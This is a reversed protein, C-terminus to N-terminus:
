KDLRRLQALRKETADLACGAAALPGATGGAGEQADPDCAKNLHKLWARQEDRLKLRAPEGLRSMVRKYVINLERDQRKFEVDTCDTMAPDNGDAQKICQDYAPSGAGAPSAAAAVLFLGLLLAAAGAATMRTM